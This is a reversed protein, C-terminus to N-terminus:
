TDVIIRGPSYDANPGVTSSRLPNGFLMWEVVSVANDITLTTTEGKRVKEIEVFVKPELNEILTKDVALKVEGILEYSDLLDLFGFKWGDCYACTRWDDYAELNNMTDLTAGIYSAGSNLFAKLLPGEQATSCAESYVVPYGKFEIASAQDHSLIVSNHTAWRDPTGHIRATFVGDSFQLIFESVSLLKAEDKTYRNLVEVDFGLEALAKVHIDSRTPQSDFVIAIDSDVIFPDMHYLVTEPPGFIRGFPFDPKGDGDLDQIFWDTFAYAGDYSIQTAPLEKNTGILLVGKHFDPDYNERVTKQTLVWSRGKELIFDSGLEKAKQEYQGAKKDGVRGCVVLMRKLLDRNMKGVDFALEEDARKKRFKKKIENISGLSGKSIINM